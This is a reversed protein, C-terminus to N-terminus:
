VTKGNLINCIYDGYKEVKKEGFGKIKFLEIKNKPKAKILLDLEQNNFVMYAKIGEERSTKLRYEKLAIYMNEDLSNKIIENKGQQYLDFDIDSLKYKSMYDIKLSKNNKVLFDSIEFMYKELINKENDKNNLEKKLINIIQDYKYISNQIYKSCKSKNLITKPNAIIVASKVPLTKIIGNKTLIEKLINVHRENQSIPSYMGEKKITKGYSNKIIRIFDGEATIEIDGTLKKTELVLIFKNTIIIFDFQAVYDGYELRIDHLCIMPIFSNKLEYYVNNEGDLGYKLLTIDRDIFEKKNSIVKQSLEILDNIQANNKDFEKLFIPQNITRKKFISLLADQVLSM